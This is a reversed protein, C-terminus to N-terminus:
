GSPQGTSLGAMPPPPPPAMSSTQGGAAPPQKPPPPADAFLQHPRDTLSLPNKAALLRETSYFFGCLNLVFLVHNEQCSVTKRHFLFFWM